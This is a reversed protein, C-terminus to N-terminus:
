RSRGQHHHRWSLPANRGFCRPRQGRAGALAAGARSGADSLRGEGGGGGQPEVGGVAGPFVDGGALTLREQPFGLAGVALHVGEAHGQGMGAAAEGFCERERGITDVEGGPNQHELGQLLAPRPDVAGHGDGRGQEVREIEHVADAFQLRM